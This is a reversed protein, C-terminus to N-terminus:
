TLPYTSCRIHCLMGIVDLLDVMESEYEDDGHAPNISNTDSQSMRNSVGPVRRAANSLRRFIGNRPVDLEGTHPGIHAALSSAAESDGAEVHPALHPSLHEVMSRPARLSRRNSSYIPEEAVTPMENVTAM